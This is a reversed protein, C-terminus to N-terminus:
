GHFDREFGRSVVAVGKAGLHERLAEAIQRTMREQMQLRRSYCDVLRALKSLGVVKGPIYGIDVTGAFPLLHHECLSTFDIGRLIVVEDYSEEFTKSLIEKPDMGYGETMEGMAKVFRTPTNEITEKDQTMRLRLFDRLANQLHIADRGDDEYKSSRMSDSMHKERYRHLDETMRLMEDGMHLILLDKADM